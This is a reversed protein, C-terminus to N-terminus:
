CSFMRGSSAREGFCPLGIGLNQLPFPVSLGLLMTFFADFRQPLQGFLPCCGVWHVRRLHREGKGLSPTRVQTAALWERGAADMRHCTSPTPFLEQCLALWSDVKSFKPVPPQRPPHCSSGVNELYRRGFIHPQQIWFPDLRGLYARENEGGLCCHDAVPAWLVM